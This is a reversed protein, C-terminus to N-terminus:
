RRPSSRRTARRRTRRIRPPTYANRRSIKARPPTRRRACRAKICTHTNSGTPTTPWRNGGEAVAAGAAWRPAKSPSRCRNRRQSAKRNVRQWREIRWLTVALRRVRSGNLAGVAEYIAIQADSLHGAIANGIHTTQRKEWADFSAKTAHVGGYTRLDRRARTVTERMEAYQDVLKSGFPIRVTRADRAGDTTPALQHGRSDIPLHYRHLDFADRFFQERAPALSRETLENSLEDLRDEADRWEGHQGHVRADRLRREVIKRRPATWEQATANKARTITEHGATLANSRVDAM